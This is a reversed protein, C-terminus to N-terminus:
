LFEGDVLSTRLSGLIGQDQGDNRGANGRRGNSKTVPNTGGHAIRRVANLIGVSALNGCFSNVPTSSRHRGFRPM